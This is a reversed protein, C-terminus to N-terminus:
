RSVLSLLEATVLETTYSREGSSVTLVTRAPQDPDGAVAEAFHQANQLKTLFTASGGPAIDHPVEAGAGPEDVPVLSTGGRDARIAWGAVHFPVRGANVVKVGILFQGEPTAEAANLLAERVDSGADNTVLGEPTLRGIVPTLKPRRRARLAAVVQWGLSAAALVIAIVSLVFAAVTM